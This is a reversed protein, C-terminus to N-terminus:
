SESLIDDRRPGGVLEGRGGERGGEAGVQPVMHSGHCVGLLRRLEVRGIALLSLPLSSLVYFLFPDLPSLFLSV